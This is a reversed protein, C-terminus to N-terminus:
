HGRQGYRGAPLVYPRSPFKQVDEEYSNLIGDILASPHNLSLWQDRSSTLTSDIEEPSGEVYKLPIVNRSWAIKNLITGVANSIEMTQPM